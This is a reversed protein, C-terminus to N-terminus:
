HSQWGSGNSVLKIIFISQHKDNSILSKRALKNILISTYKIVINDIRVIKKLSTSCSCISQTHLIPCWMIVRLLFCIIVRLLLLFRTTWTLFKTHVVRFNAKVRLFFVLFHETAALFGTKGISKMSSIKLQSCTFGKSRNLHTQLCSCAM